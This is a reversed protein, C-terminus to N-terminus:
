EKGNKYIIIQINQKVLQQNISDIFKKCNETIPYLFSILIEYRKIIADKFMQEGQGSQIFGLYNNIKEQLVILHDYEQEWNLHDTILMVVTSKDSNKQAIADVKKFDLISM